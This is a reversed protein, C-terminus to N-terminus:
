ADETEFISVFANVVVPDFDSGSCRQIEAIAEEHSRKSRYVRENTIAEYADVVSLIRAGLCIWQGSLGLPYGSGDFHEHHSRILTAVESLKSVSLVIDAGIDPHRKMIDWEDNTLPNPKRLIEDPVGIKGIDHLLAALGITQREPPSCGLKDAIQEAFNVVKQGHGGTSPDRAEIAKALALVTEFHSYRLYDSLKTRHIASASQDAILKTLRLKGDHFPRSIHSREEGLVLLGIVEANVQMPMLCLAQCNHLRLTRGEDMSLSNQQRTIVLATNQKIVRNYIRQAYAPDYIKERNYGEGLFYAAQCEYKHDHTRTLLRCFSVQVIDVTFQIISDLLVELTNTTVLTRSFNYLKNIKKSSVHESQTELSKELDFDTDPLKPM